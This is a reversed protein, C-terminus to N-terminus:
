LRWMKGECAAKVQAKTTAGAEQAFHRMMAILIVRLAERQDTQWPHTLDALHFHETVQTSGVTVTCSFHDGIVNALTNITLNPM